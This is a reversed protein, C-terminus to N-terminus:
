AAAESEYAPIGSETPFPYVSARGYDVRSFFGRARLRTFVDWAVVRVSGDTLVLSVDAARLPTRQQMEESFTNYRPTTRRGRPKTDVMRTQEQQRPTCIERGKVPQRHGRGDGRYAHRPILGQEELARRVKAILHPSVDGACKALHRNSRSPDALLWLEALENKGKHTGPRLSTANRRRLKRRVRVEALATDDVVRYGSARAECADFFPIIKFARDRWSNSRAAWRPIAVYGGEHDRDAKSSRRCPMTAFSTKGPRSLGLAPADWGIM